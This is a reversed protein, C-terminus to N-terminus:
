YNCSAAYISREALSADCMVTLISLLIDKLLFGPIPDLSSLKTPSNMIMRHMESITCTRFNNVGPIVDSNIVPARVAAVREAVFLIFGEATFRGM